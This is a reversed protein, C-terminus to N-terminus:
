KSDVAWGLSKKIEEVQRRKVEHEQELMGLVDSTESSRDSSSPRHVPPLKRLTRKPLQHAYELM